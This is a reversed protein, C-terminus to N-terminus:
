KNFDARMCTNFDAFKCSRLHMKEKGFEAGRAMSTDDRERGASVVLVDPIADVVLAQFRFGSGSIVAHVSVPAALQAVQQHGLNGGCKQEILRRSFDLRPAPGRLAGDQLWWRFRTKNVEGPHRSCLNRDIRPNYRRKERTEFCSKHITRNSSAHLM